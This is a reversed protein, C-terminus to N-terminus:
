VNNILCMAIYENRANLTDDWDSLVLAIEWSTVNSQNDIESIQVPHLYAGVLVILLFIKKYLLHLSVDEMRCTMGKRM